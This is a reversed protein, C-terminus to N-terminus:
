LYKEEKDDSIYSQILFGKVSNEGLVSFRSLRCSSSSSLSNCHSRVKFIFNLSTSSSLNQIEAFRSYGTM